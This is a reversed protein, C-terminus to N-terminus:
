RELANKRLVWGSQLSTRVKDQLLMKALVPNIEDVSANCYYAIEDRSRAGSQMAQIVQEEM